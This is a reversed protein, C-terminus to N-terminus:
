DRAGWIVRSVGQCWDDDWSRGLKCSECYITLDSATGSFANYGFREVSSPINIQSLSNCGSFAFNGIVKLGQPLRIYKLATCGSFARKGIETVTDPLLLEVIQACFELASEGIKEIGEPISFREGVRATAAKLLTKKDKSFLHGDVTTFHENSPDVAIEYLADCRSICVPSIYEVSAPISIKRLSLFCEFLEGDLEIIGEPVVVEKVEHRNSPGIESALVCRVPKDCYEAPFILPEAGYILEASYSEGDDALEFNYKGTYDNKM